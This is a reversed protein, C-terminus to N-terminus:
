WSRGLRKLNGQATTNGKKAAKRYWEIAQDVDKTVGEGNEYCAGLNNQALAYGQDAAKRYWYVAQSYDTTVGKGHHYCYGLNCQADAYGQNAAKRYWYVAQYYDTTVGLGYYYCVGLNYQAYYYDQDAAKRYWYMAQSYNQTVGKGDHYCVGLDNQARAEGRQARRVLADNYTDYNIAVDDDDDDIKQRERQVIADLERRKSDKLGTGADGLSTLVTLAKTSGAKAACELWYNAWDLDKNVGMAFRYCTSLELMADADGQIAREELAKSYTTEAVAVGTALMLLLSFVLFKKM